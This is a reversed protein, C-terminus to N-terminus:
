AINRGMHVVRVGNNVLPIGGISRRERFGLRNKTLTTDRKCEYDNRKKPSKKMEDSKRWFSTERLNGCDNHKGTL